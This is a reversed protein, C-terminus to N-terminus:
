ASTDHESASQHIDSGPLRRSLIMGPCIARSGGAPLIEERVFHLRILKPLCGEDFHREIAEPVNSRLEDLTNAETFISQGVARATFGGEPAEEVVIM